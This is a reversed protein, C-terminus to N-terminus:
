RSNRREWRRKEMETLLRRIKDLLVGFSLALLSLVVLMEAM